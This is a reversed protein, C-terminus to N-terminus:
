RCLYGELALVRLSEDNGFRVSASKPVLNAMQVEAQFQINNRSM